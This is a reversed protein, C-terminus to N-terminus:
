LTKGAQVAAAERMRRALAVLQTGVRVDADGLIYYAAREQASALRGPLLAFIAVFVLSVIVGVVLVVSHLLDSINVM